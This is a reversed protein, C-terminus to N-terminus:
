RVDEEILNALETYADAVAAQRTPAEKRLWDRIGAVSWGAGTRKSPKIRSNPGIPEIPAPSTMAYRKRSKAVCDQEWTDRDTPSWTSFRGSGRHFQAHCKIHLAFAYHDHSRQSKGKRANEIAKRPRPEEPSYTMGSLAHHPECPGPGGCSMCDQTRVWNLYRSDQQELVLRVQTETLSETM